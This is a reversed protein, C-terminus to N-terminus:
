RPRSPDAEGLISLAIAGNEASPVDTWAVHDVHTMNERARFYGREGRSLANRTALPDPLLALLRALDREHKAQSRRGQVNQAVRAKIVLAGTLSPCALEFPGSGADVTVTRRRNLAQRGGLAELTEDPPVTTRRARQGLHDPALVDVIDADRIFRYTLNEGYRQPVFAAAQLRGAAQEAASSVMRVDLVIDVDGTLWPTQVGHEIELIRVMLGGILVWPLDAFLGSVEQALRWVAADEGNVPRVVISTV